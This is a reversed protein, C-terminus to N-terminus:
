GEAEAGEWDEDLDWVYGTGGCTTCGGSGGCKSCKRGLRRGKGDCEPCSGSANCEPCTAAGMAPEPEPQAQIGLAHAAELAAELRAIVAETGSRARNLEQRAERYREEDTSLQQEAQELSERLRKVEVQLEAMRDREEGTLPEPAKEEQLRDREAALDDLERELERVRDDREALRTEMDAVHAELEAIREGHGERADREARAAALQDEAARRRERERGLQDQLWGLGAEAERVRGELSDQQANGGALERLLPPNLPIRHGGALLTFEAEPHEVAALTAPFAARWSQTESEGEVLARVEESVDGDVAVELTFDGLRAADPAWVGAARTLATHGVRVYEFTEVEVGPAGAGARKARRASRRRRLRGVM